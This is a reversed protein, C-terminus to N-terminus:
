RYKRADARLERRTMTHYPKALQTHNHVERSPVYQLLRM